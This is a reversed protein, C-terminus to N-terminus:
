KLIGRLLPELEKLNYEDVTINLNSGGGPLEYDSYDLHVGETEELWGGDVYHMLDNALLWGLYILPKAKKDFLEPDALLKKAYAELFMIELCERIVKKPIKKINFVPMNRKRELRAEIEKEKVAILPHRESFINEQVFKMTDKAFFEAKKILEPTIEPSYEKGTFRKLGEEDEDPALVSFDGFIGVLMALNISHAVNELFKARPSYNIYHDTVEFGFHMVVDELTLVYPKGRFEYNLLKEKLLWREVPRVSNLAIPLRFLFEYLDERTFLRCVDAAKMCWIMAYTSPLGEGNYKFYEVPLGKVYILRSDMDYITKVM